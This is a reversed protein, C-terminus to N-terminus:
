HRSSGAVAILTAFLVAYAAASLLVVKTRYAAPRNESEAELREIL